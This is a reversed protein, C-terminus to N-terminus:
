WCGARLLEAATMQLSLYNNTTGTDSLAFLQRVVTNAATLNLWMGVTFPYDLVAPSANNLYQTSAANFFAAM